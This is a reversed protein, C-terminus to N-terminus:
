WFYGVVGWLPLDTVSRTYTFIGFWLVFLFGFLMLKAETPYIDLSLFEKVTKNQIKAWILTGVVLFVALKFQIILAELITM